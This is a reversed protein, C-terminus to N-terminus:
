QKSHGATQTLLTTAAIARNKPRVLPKPKRISEKIQLISRHPKNKKITSNSQFDDVFLMLLHASQNFILILRHILVGTM